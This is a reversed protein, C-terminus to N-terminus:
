RRYPKVLGQDILKLKLRYIYDKSEINLTEMIEKQTYGKIIMDICKQKTEESYRKAKEIDFHYEKSIHKWSNGMKIRSLISKSMNGGIIEAIENYTLKGEQMLECARRVEDETVTSMYSGSGCNSTNGYEAKFSNMDWEINPLYNNYTVGDKFKVSWNECGSKYNFSKMMALPIYDKIEYCYLYKEGNIRFSICFWGNIKDFVRGMNSIEYRKELGRVPVFVEYPSVSRASFICPHIVIPCSYKHYDYHQIAFDGINGKEQQIQNIYRNYYSNHFKAINQERTLWQLNFLINNYSCEDIHDVELDECGPFYNFTMMMTRHISCHGDKSKGEEDIYRFHCYLHHTAEACNLFRKDKFNYVRGYNSIVYWPQIGKLINDTVPVWVEDPFLGVPLENINLM